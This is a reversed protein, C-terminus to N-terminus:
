GQGEGSPLPTGALRKLEYLAAQAERPSLADPDLAALAESLPYRAPAQPPPEYSFLPLVDLTGSPRSAELDALVKRAAQDGDGPARRAQRGPHRLLPRRRRRRGRAPLRPQGQIRQGAHHPQRPAALDRRARDARPLPDRRLSSARMQGEIQAINVMSEDELLRQPASAVSLAASTPGALAPAMPGSLAALAADSGSLAAPGLTTLRLVMPRLVVLLTMVGIVGFLATQALHLLDAKELM